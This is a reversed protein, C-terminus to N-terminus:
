EAVSKRIEVNGQNKNIERGLKETTLEELREGKQYPLEVLEKINQLSSKDMQCISREPHLLHGSFSITELCKNPTKRKRKVRKKEVM